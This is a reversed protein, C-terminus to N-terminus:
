NIGAAPTEFEEVRTRVYPLTDKLYDTFDYALDAYKGGFNVSMPHFYIHDADTIRGVMAATSSKPPVLELEFDSVFTQVTKDFIAILEPSRGGKGWDYLGDIFVTAKM